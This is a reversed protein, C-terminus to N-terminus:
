DEFYGNRPKSPRVNVAGASACHSVAVRRHRRQDRRAPGGSLFFFYYFTANLAQRLAAVELPLELAEQQMVQGRLNM